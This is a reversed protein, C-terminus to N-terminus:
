REKLDALTTGLLARREADLRDFLPHLVQAVRDNEEPAITYLNPSIAEVIRAVTIKDPPQALAFGRAGDGAV